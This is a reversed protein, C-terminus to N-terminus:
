SCSVIDHGQNVREQLEVEAAWLTDALPGAVGTVKGRLFWDMTLDYRDCFRVLALTEPYNVGRLWNGIKPPSIDFQRAVDIQRLGLAEITLRLRKGVVIKHESSEM